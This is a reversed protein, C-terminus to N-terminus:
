AAVFTQNVSTNFFHVVNLYLNSSQDDSIELLLHQYEFFQKCKKFHNTRNCIIITISAVIKLMVRSNNIAVGSADNVSRSTDKVIKVTCAVFQPM